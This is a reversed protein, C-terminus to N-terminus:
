AANTIVTIKAKHSSVAPAEEANVAAEQAKHEAKGEAKTNLLIFGEEDFEPTESYNPYNAM